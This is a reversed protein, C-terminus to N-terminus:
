RALTITSNELARCIDLFKKLKWDPTSHQIDAVVVDCPSLEEFIRRLDNEIVDEPNDHLAMPSYLVARRTEPFQEKVRVLDSDMGMDVYGMNPLEGLVDIYPTIDWNCTHVGFREFHLAIKKDYPFVVERYMEPSIMNMVCNSVSLQNIYFGSDRQKEQVMRAFRIMADCITTFLQHVFVPRAYFDLFLDQGRLHFANNLVSQWNLYGHIKGWKAQITDMQELLEEVAPSQLLADADCRELDEVSLRFNHPITPWRDAAFRLPIGFLRLVPYIGYVGSITALDSSRSLDWQTASPFTRVLEAKMIELSKFRYYPDKHWPESFDIGCRRHFWAPEFGFSVRMDTESGDTPERRAPGAIPIHNRLRLLAM